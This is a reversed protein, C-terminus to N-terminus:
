DSVLVRATRAPVSIDPGTHASSDIQDVYSGSPVGSVTAGGDGRNIVVIVDDAGETMRYALTENTVSLTTRSGRRLAPHDARIAALTAIRERLFTQGGTYGSWQM